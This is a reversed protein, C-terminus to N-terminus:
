VAKEVHYETCQGFLFSFSRFLHQRQERGGILAGLDDFFGVGPGWEMSLSVAGRSRFQAATNPIAGYKAVFNSQAVNEGFLEGTL